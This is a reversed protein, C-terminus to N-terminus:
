RPDEPKCVLDPPRVHQETHQLDARRQHGLGLWVIVVGRGDMMAPSNLGLASPYVASPCGELTDRQQADTDRSRNTLIPISHPGPSCVRAHHRPEGHRRHKEQPCPSEMATVQSDRLM